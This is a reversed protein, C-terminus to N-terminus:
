TSLHKLLIEIDVEGTFKKVLQGDKNYIFSTPVSTSGFIITFEEDKDCLFIFNNFENLYYKESFEIIEKAPSSSVMVIQYKKLENQNLFFQEAEYQCHSCDPNFYIIICANEKSLITNCVEGEELDNFCFEPIGKINEEVQKKHNIKKITSNVLYGITFLIILV